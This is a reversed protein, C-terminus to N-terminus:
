LNHMKKGYLYILVTKVETIFLDGQVALAQKRRSFVRRYKRFNQENPRAQLLKQLLPAM